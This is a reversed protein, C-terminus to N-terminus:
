SEEIFSQYWAEMEQDAPSGAIFLVRYILKLSQGAPVRHEGRGAAGGEFDHLGFPNAAFLGYDRAHWTTPHRLNQPHDFIAVSYVQGDIEGQYTVWKAKKGWIEAGTQGHHNRAFGVSQPHKSAYARDFQFSPPLRIAFTGEKTDEFVIEGQSALLNIKAEIWRMKEGGGFRYNTEDSLITSNDSKRIWNSQTYIESPGIVEFKEIQVTGQKESWFDVGNIIHSFWLGKHHPHDTPQDTASPDIPWRRTLHVQNPGFIPFFFPKHKEQTLLRTFLQNDLLVDVGQETPTIQIRSSTQRANAALSSDQGLGPVPYLWGAMLLCLGVQLLCNARIKQFTNM